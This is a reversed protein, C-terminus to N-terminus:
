AGLNKTFTIIGKGNEHKYDLSDVLQKSIHIGLGGVKRKEIPLSTDVDGAKTVDFPEAEEDVLRVFLTEGERWFSVGIANQNGTNYKVMNTFFEEVALHLAFAIDEGAKQSAMFDDLFSFVEPLADIEKKFQKEM